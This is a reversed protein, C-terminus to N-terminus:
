TAARFIYRAPVQRRLPTWFSCATCRYGSVVSKGELTHNRIPVVKSRCVPCSEVPAVLPRRAYRIVVHIKKSSLLVQRMRSPSVLLSDSEWQLEQVVAEYLRRQTEVSGGHSYLIRLALTEIVKDPAWRYGARAAHSRAPRSPSEPDTESATTDKEPRSRRSTSSSPWNKKKGDWPFRKPKM